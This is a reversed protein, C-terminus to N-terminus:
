VKRLIHSIVRGVFATLRHYIKYPFSQQLKNKLTAVATAMFFNKLRITLKLSHERREAGSWCM